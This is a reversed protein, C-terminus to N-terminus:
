KEEIKKNEEELVTKREELIKIQEKVGELEDKVENKKRNVVKETEVLVLDDKPEEDFKLMISEEGLDVMVRWKGAMDQEKSIIKKFELSM